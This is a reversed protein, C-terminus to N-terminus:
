ALVLNWAAADWSTMVMVPQHWATPSKCTTATMMMMMM